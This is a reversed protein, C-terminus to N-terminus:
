ASPLFEAIGARRSGGRAWVIAFDGFFFCGVLCGCDLCWAPCVPETPLEEFIAATCGLAGVVGVEGGEAFVSGGPRAAGGAFTDAFVSGGLGTKGAAFVSGGLSRAGLKTKAPAETEAV